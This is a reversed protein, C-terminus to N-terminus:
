PRVPGPRGREMDLFLAEVLTQEVPSNRLRAATARMLEANGVRCAALTLARDWFPDGPPQRELLPPILLALQSRDNQALADILRFRLRAPVSFIGPTDHIGKRYTAIFHNNMWDPTGALPALKGYIISEVREEMNNKLALDLDKAEAFDLRTEVRRQEAADPSLAAARLRPDLEHALNPFKQSYLDTLQVKGRKFFAREATEDVVPFFDSNALEPKLLPALTKSTAILQAATFYTQPWNFYTFTERMAPEDLRRGFDEVRLPELAAVIVIDNTEPMRFVLFDPFEAHLAALISLFLADDFEYVHLWQVLHGGPKLFHRAHHYFEQTFLSSVGSVWPNSPESIILDYRRNGNYFYSKADDVIFRIRKDTFVRENLPRFHEAMRIVEREIEIMDLERVLPDALLFHGTLGTGMGIIAADYPQTRARMPLFALGAMTTDDGSIGRARAAPTATNGDSKGNTRLTINHATKSVAITATRGDRVYLEPTQARVKDIGARSVNPLHNRYTGLNLLLPDMQYFVAVLTAAAFVGAGTWRWAPRPVYRWLLFLGLAADLLAGGAITWKLQLLPLLFVGAATAGLISGITNAAYVYGTYKETRFANILAYTILPLTIGACFSAPFLMVLCLAYKTASYWVYAQDTRAFVEHLGNVFGIAPRYSLITALAFLGMLIQVVALKLALDGPRALLRKSYLGGCALGLIFASVMVDFSHTSSGMILSVLRIWGVEYVFSAFGTLAALGLWLPVDRRGLAPVTALPPPATEGPPRPVADKGELRRSLILSAVAILVNGMGALALTGATGYLRVFFYSTAVIGAAAGLSNTFYLLSLSRAGGDTSIRMVAVAILPFTTGLLIAVPLTTALCIGLKATLQAAYPIQAGTVWNFYASSAGTYVDHYVWGMFGISLEALGYARLPRKIRSIFRGILLSGLGLGGMFIALTLVQGASSHGLLLKLYRSWVAEYMLGVFGSLIFILYIARLM